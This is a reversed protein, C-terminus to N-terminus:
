VPEKRLATIIWLVVVSLVAAFYCWVSIIFGNFFTIAFISSIILVYGFWKMRKVSSIFPTILTAVSYLLAFILQPYKTDMDFDFSYHIHNAGAVPHVPNTFLVYITGVCVVIGTYLMYLMIKRRQENKELMRITLPVWVPWVTIAFFLFIYTFFSQGWQYSNHKLSMWLMGEAFQQVAFVLPICAFLHHPITKAKVITTIGIATLVASAGFSATESFCM